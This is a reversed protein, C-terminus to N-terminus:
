LELPLLTETFLKEWRKKVIAIERELSARRSAISARLADDDEDDDNFLETGLTVDLRLSKLHKEKALLRTYLLRLGDKEMRSVANRLQKQTVHQESFQKTFTKSPLDSLMRLFPMFVQFQSVLSNEMMIKLAAAEAIETVRDEIVEFSGSHDLLEHDARLVNSVSSSINSM